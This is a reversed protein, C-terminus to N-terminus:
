GQLSQIRRLNAAEALFGSHEHVLTEARVEGERLRRFSSFCDIYEAGGWPILEQSVCVLDLSECQQRVHAASMSSARWHQSEVSTNGDSDTYAGLNSHHLFAFGGPRLTRALERLYGDVADVEAHVLSDWSFVLDLSSDAIMPLSQGDSKTFTVNTLVALREQAAQLIDDALDIATLSGSQTALFRTCRGHGCAIELVDRAPLHRGIRPMILGHWMLFSDGFGSSWEEGHDTWAEALAWGLNEEITPM